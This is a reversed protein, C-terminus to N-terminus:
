FMTELSKLRTESKCHIHTKESTKCMFFLFELFLSFPSFSLSSLIEQEYSKELAASLLDVYPSIM